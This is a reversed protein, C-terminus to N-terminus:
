ARCEVQVNRPFIMALQQGPIGWRAICRAEFDRPDTSTEALMTIFKIQQDLLRLGDATLWQHLKESKKRTRIEEVIEPPFVAGYVWRLTIQGIVGPLPRHKEGYPFGFLKCVARYYDPQFRREWDPATKLILKTFLDQLANPERHYQYGTAEDILAEEGTRALAKYIARCPGLLHAHKESLNGDLAADVVGSAVETLIGSRYLKARYGDPLIALIPSETEGMKNLANPAFKAMFNAFRSGSTNAFGLAKHLARQVYHRSGDPLVACEIQMDGFKIAGYHTARPLVSERQKIERGEGPVNEPTM